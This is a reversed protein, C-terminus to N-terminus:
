LALSILKLKLKGSGCNVGPVGGAMDHCEEQGAKANDVHPNKPLHAWIQSQPFWMDLTVDKTGAQSPEVM